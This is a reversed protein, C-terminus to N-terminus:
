QLVPPEPLAAAAHGVLGDGVPEGDDAADGVGGRDGRLADVPEQGGRGPSPRRPGVIM